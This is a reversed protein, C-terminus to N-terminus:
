GGQRRRLQEKARAGKRDLAPKMLRRLWPLLYGVTALKGGFVPFERERQGDLACDVVMGAVFEATCLTQSFVINEV